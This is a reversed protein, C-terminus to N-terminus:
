LSLIAVFAFSMWCRPRSKLRTSHDGLSLDTAWPAVVQPHDALVGSLDGNGRVREKRGVRLVSSVSLIACGDVGEVGCLVM